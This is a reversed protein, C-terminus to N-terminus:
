YGRLKQLISRKQNNIQDDETSDIAQQELDLGPPLANIRDQKSAEKAYEPDKMRQNIDSAMGALGTPDVISAADFGAGLTDGAMAKNTASLGIAGAALAKLVPAAIGSVSRIKGSKMLERLSELGFLPKDMHHGEFFKEASELGNLGKSMGKGAQSAESLNYGKMLDNKHGLEHLIAGAREGESLSPSLLIKDKSLDKPNFRYQADSNPLNGEKILKPMQIENQFLENLRNEPLNHNEKSFRGLANELENRVGHVDKQRLLFDLKEDDNKFISDILDKYRKDEQNM